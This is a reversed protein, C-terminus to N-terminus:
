KLVIDNLPSIKESQIEVQGQWSAGDYTTNELRITYSGPALSYRILPTSLPKSDKGTLLKGNIYIRNASPHSTITMSGPLEGVRSRQSNQFVDESSEQSSVSDVTPANVPESQNPLESAQSRLPESDPNSVDQAEVIPNSSIENVALENATDESPQTLNQDVAGSSDTTPENVQNNAIEAAPTQIPVQSETQSDSLYFLVGILILSVYALRRTRASSQKHQTTPLRSPRGIDLNTFPNVPESTYHSPVQGIFTKQAGQDKSGLDIFESQDSPAPLDQLSHKHDHDALSLSSPDPISQDASDLGGMQSIASLRPDGLEPVELGAASPMVQSIQTPQEEDVQTHGASKKPSGVDVQRSEDILAPAERNLKERKQKEEKIEESFIDKLFKSFDSAIFKPFLEQLHRQLDEYLENASSYRESREKALAKQVIQDLKPGISPNYKSPRPVRCEKVLRLTRMDDDSAFLRRQTLVEFLIIGLAFIDTRKDLPMGRAQEPSMYGFKGKLVGARTSEAQAAMKAIGFDVIKVTGDYGLMINQPSMDRHVINMNQGSREDVYEHAYHLGKAAEAIVFLAHEIPIKKKQRDIKALVQRLNKGDVFEMTLFLYGGVEGNSYTQIVNPHQLHASLSAEQLFMEKFEESEAYQPLIRKVAVVKEFGGHGLQKARYVEAMGGAALKDLLVLSSGFREM